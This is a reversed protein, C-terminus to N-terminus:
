PVTDKYAILITDYQTVTRFKVVSRVKTFEKTLAGLEKDKDIIMKQMQSKDMQLIRISATQTGLSNRFHQVTDTLAQLNTDAFSRRRNCEKSAALLLVVLVAIMIYSTSSRM